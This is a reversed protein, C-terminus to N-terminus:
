FSRTETNMFDHIVDFLHIPDLQHETCLKALRTVGPRNVPYPCSLSSRRGICRCINRCLFETPMSCGREGHAEYSYAPLYSRRSGRDQSCHPACGPPEMGGLAPIARLLAAAERALGQAQPHLMRLEEQLADMSFLGFEEAYAPGSILQAPLLDLRKAIEEISDSRLCKDGESVGAPDLAPDWAGKFIGTKNKRNGENQKTAHSCYKERDAYGFGGGWWFFVSITEKTLYRCAPLADLKGARRFGDM